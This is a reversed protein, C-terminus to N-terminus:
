SNPAAMPMKHMSIVGAIEGDPHAATRIVVLSQGNVIPTAVQKFDAGQATKTASGTFPGESSDYITLITPGNLDGRERTSRLEIARVDAIDKADVHVTVFQHEFDFTVSAKGSAATKMNLPQLGDARLVSAKSSGTLDASWEASSHNGAVGQGTAAVFLLAIWAAAPVFLLVNKPYLDM